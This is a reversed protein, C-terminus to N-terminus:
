KTINEKKRFGFTSFEEGPRLFNFTVLFKSSGNTQLGIHVTSYKHTFFHKM